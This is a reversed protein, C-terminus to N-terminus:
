HQSLWVMLDVEPLPPCIVYGQAADCGLERLLDLQETTEVGVAIVSLGLRHALDISAQVLTVVKQDGPLRATLTPHLKIASLPFRTLASLSSGPGDGFDDVILRAGHTRLQELMDLTQDSHDLLSGASVEIDPAGQASLLPLLRRLGESRRLEELSLNVSMQWDHAQAACGARVRDRGAVAAEVVWEGISTILNSRGAIELFASPTLLGLEPHQWRLLAEAGLPQGTKLDLMPQYLLTFQQAALAGRLDEELAYASKVGARLAPTFVNVSGRGGKRAHQVAIEANSLVEEPTDGELAAVGLAFSLATEHPRARLSASLVQQVAELAAQESLGPLLAAFTGGELRAAAGVQGTEDQGSGRHEANKLGPQNQGIQNQGAVLDDLRAALGILIRDCAIRGLAANLASFGDINLCVLAGTAGVGPPVQLAALDERLGVRNRLGTLADHRADHHMKAEARRLVTVDRLTLLVGGAKHGAEPGIPTIRLEMHRLSHGPLALLVEKRAPLNPDRWDPLALPQGGPSFVRVGLENLVRTLGLGMLRSAEVGLLAAARDNVLQARGAADILVTADESLALMQSVLGMPATGNIPAGLSEAVLLGNKVSRRLTLTLTEGNALPLAAQAPEGRAALRVLDRAEASPTDALGAWDWLAVGVLAAQPQHAMQPALESLGPSAHLVVGAETLLAAPTRTDLLASIRSAREYEGSVDQLTLMVGAGWGGVYSRAEGRVWRTRATHPLPDTDASRTKISRTDTSGPDVPRTGLAEDALRVSRGAVAQELALVLAPRGPLVEAVTRGLVGADNLNLLELFPRSVRRFVLEPTLWATAVPLQTVLVEAERGAGDPRSAALLMTLVEVATPSVAGAESWLLGLLEGDRALWTMEGSELWADPPELEPGCLELTDGELYLVAEGVRALLAAEPAHDRLLGGLATHLAAHPPRAGAPSISTPRAAPLRMAPLLEHDSVVLDPHALDVHALEPKVPVARQAATTQAATTQGGATPAVRKTKPVSPTM